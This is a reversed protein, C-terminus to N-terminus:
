GGLRVTMSMVARPAAFEKFYFSRDSGERGHEVLKWM